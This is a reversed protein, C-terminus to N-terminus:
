TWSRVAILGNFNIKVVDIQKIKSQQTQLGNEVRMQSLRGTACHYKRKAVKDKLSESVVQDLITLGMRM